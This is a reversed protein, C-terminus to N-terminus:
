KIKKKTENRQDMRLQSLEAAEVDCAVVVAVVVVVTQVVFDVAFVPQAM